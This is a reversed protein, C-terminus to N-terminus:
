EWRRLMDKIQEWLVAATVSATYYKVDAHALFKSDRKGWWQVDSQLGGAQSCGKCSRFIIWSV